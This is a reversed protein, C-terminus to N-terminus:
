LSKEQHMFKRRYLRYGIILFVMFILLTMLILAIFINNQVSFLTKFSKKVEQVYTHDADVEAMKNNLAIVQGNIQLHGNHSALENTATRVTHEANKFDSFTTWSTLLMDLTAEMEKRDIPFPYVFATNMPLSDRIKSANVYKNIDKGQITYMASQFVSSTNRQTHYRINRNDYVIGSDFISLGYDTYHQDYTWYLESSIGLPVIEKQALVDLFASMQSKLGAIDPSITSAVVPANVVISGNRSQLHKLTELYRQMAPFQFNSFVPQVSAIFPIGANYLRDAVENLVDLDSFPYIENLLVYNQGTTNVHLWDKMVFSTALESVNGKVMYPIYANRGQIVGFPYSVNGNDSTSSGYPTGKFKTIYSINKAMISDETLQGMTIKLTDNAHQQVELGMEQAVLQPLQYGIHMYDGFYSKMDRDFAESSHPIDELNHITIVKSFKQLTGAEYKDTSTITVQSSFSALIRQLAEINGEYPTGIALSDYVILVPATVVSNASTVKPLCFFFLLQVFVLLSTSIKNRKLM